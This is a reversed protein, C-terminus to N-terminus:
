DIHPTFKSQTPFLPRKNYLVVMNHFTVFFGLNKKM